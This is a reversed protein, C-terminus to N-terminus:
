QLMQLYNAPANASMMTGQHRCVFWDHSNTDLVELIDGARFSLEDPEEAVCDYLARALPYSAGGMQPLRDMQTKGGRNPRQLMTSGQTFSPFAPAGNFSGGNFSGGGHGGNFSQFMQSNQATQFVNSQGQNFGPPPAPTKGYQSFVVGGETAVVASSDPPLSAHRKEVHTDLDSQFYYTNTCHPCKLPADSTNKNKLMVPGDDGGGRRSRWFVLGGVLLIIVLAAAGIGAGLAIPDPGDSIPVVEGNLDYPLARACPEDTKACPIQDVKLACGIEYMKACKARMDQCYRDCPKLLGAPTIGTECRQCYFTCTLGQYAALCERNEPAFLATECVADMGMLTSADAQIPRQNAVDCLRAVLTNGDEQFIEQRTSFGCYKPGSPPQSGCPACDIGSCPAATPEDEVSAPTPQPTPMPTPPPPTPVSGPLPTPIPTPARTGIQFNIIEIRGADSSNSNAVTFGGSVVIYREVEDVILAASAFARPVALQIGFDLFTGNERDLVNIVGSPRFLYPPLTKAEVAVTTTVPQSNGGVVFVYPPAEVISQHSIAGSMLTKLEFDSQAASVIEYSSLLITAPSGARTGIGGMVIISKRNFTTVATCGFRPEALNLVGGQMRDDPGIIEIVGIPRGGVDRGGIVIAAFGGSGELFGGCAEGRPTRLATNQQQFWKEGRYIDITAFQCCDSLGGIAYIVDTKALVLPFGRPVSLKGSLMTESVVAKRTASEILDTASGTALYDAKVFGGILWLKQFARASGMGWRPVSMPYSIRCPTRNEICNKPSFVNCRGLVTSANRGGCFYILDDGDALGSAAFASPFDITLNATLNQILRPRTPQATTSPTTTACLWLLLLFFM